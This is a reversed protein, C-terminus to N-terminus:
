ITYFFDNRIVLYREAINERPDQRAAGSAQAGVAGEDVIRAEIEAVPFGDL